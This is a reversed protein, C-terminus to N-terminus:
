PDLLAPGAAVNGVRTGEGCGTRSGVGGGGGGAGAGAGTGFDFASFSSQPSSSSSSPVLLEGSGSILKLSSLRTIFLGLLVGGVASSFRAAVTAVELSTALSSDDFASNDSSPGLDSECGESMPGGGGLFVREMKLDLFVPPPPPSFPLFPILRYRWLHCASLSSNLASTNLRATNPPPGSGLLAEEEEESKSKASVSNPSDEEESGGESEDKEEEFSVRTAELVELPVRSSVLISTVLTM